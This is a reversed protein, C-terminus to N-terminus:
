SPVPAPRVRLALRRLLSWVGDPLFMILFLLSGGLVLHWVHPVYEAAYTALVVYLASGVFPAAVSGIGALIAIFVFEGSTTWYSMEPDVHGAAMAVIAGGAGALLGAIVYKVHIARHVSFGLYEVRIENDRIATALHGATSRLYRHVTLTAALAIVAAFATLCRQAADSELHLEFFSPVMVTFGDTSGLNESRVLVGYLVMAFALTLMGFFIDRYRSLLFGLLFALVGAMLTAALVLLLASSIGFELNLLGVTYGGVAYYLSQGFSMLGSRWLLMLGLVVTGQALSIVLMFIAWDPAFSSLGLLVVTAAVLGPLTRDKGM